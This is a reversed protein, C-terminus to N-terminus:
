QAKKILEYAPTSHYEDTIVNHYGIINTNDTWNAGVPVIQYKISYGNQNEIDDNHKSKFSEFDFDDIKLQINVSKGDNKRLYDQLKDNKKFSLRPIIRFRAKSLFEGIKINCNVYGKKFPLFEFIDNNMMWQRKDFASKNSKQTIVIEEDMVKYDDMIQMIEDRNISIEVESINSKTYLKKNESDDYLNHLYNKLDISDYYLQVTINLNAEAPIGDVFMNFKTECEKIPLYNTFYKKEITWGMSNWSSYNANAKVTIYKSINLNSNLYKAFLQSLKTKGTGSNGTLIEFPKVKLSLLYNEILEKDFYYGNSILYKYFSDAM